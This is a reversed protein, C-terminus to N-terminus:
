KESNDGYGQEVGHLAGKIVNPSDRLPPVRQALERGEPTDDGKGGNEYPGGKKQGAPKVANSQNPAQEFM